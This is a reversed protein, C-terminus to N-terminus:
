RTEKRSDCRSVVPTHRIRRRYHMIRSLVQKLPEAVMVTKGNILTIVTDPTSEIQEILEANLYFPTGNIRSLRIM